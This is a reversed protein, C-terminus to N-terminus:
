GQYAEWEQSFVYGFLTPYKTQKRFAEADAQKKTPDIMRARAAKAVATFKTTVAKQSASMNEKRARKEKRSLQRKMGTYRYDTDSRYMYEVRGNKKSLKGHLEQVPDHLMFEGM